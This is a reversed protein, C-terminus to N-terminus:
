RPPTVARRVGSPLARRALIEDKVRSDFGGRTAHLSVRGLTASASALGLAGRHTPLVFHAGELADGATWVAATMRSGVSPAYDLMSGWDHMILLRRDASLVRVMGLVIAEAGVETLVGDVHTVLMTPAPTWLTLKGDRM